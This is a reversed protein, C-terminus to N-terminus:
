GVLYSCRKNKRQQINDRTKLVCALTWLHLTDLYYLTDHKEQSRFGDHTCFRRSRRHLFTFSKEWHPYPFMHLSGLPLLTCLLVSDTVSALWYSTEKVAALLESWIMFQCATDEVFFSPDAPCYYAVSFTSSSQYLSFIGRRGFSEILYLVFVSCSSKGNLLDTTQRQKFIFLYIGERHAM